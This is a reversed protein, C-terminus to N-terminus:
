ASVGATWTATGYQGHPPRGKEQERDDRERSAAAAPRATVPHRSVLVRRLGVGAAALVLVLSRSLTTSPFLTSRPPPRIMIFFFFVNSCRPLTFSLFFPDTFCM